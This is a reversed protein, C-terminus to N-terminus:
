NRILLMYASALYLLSIM